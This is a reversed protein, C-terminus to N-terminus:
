EWSELDNHKFLLKKTHLRRKEHREDDIMLCLHILSHRTEKEGTSSCSANLKERILTYYREERVTGSLESKTATKKMIIMKMTRDRKLNRVGQFAQCLIRLLCDFSLSEPTDDRSSEHLSYLAVFAVVIIINIFVYPFVLDHNM